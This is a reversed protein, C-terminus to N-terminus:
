IQSPHCSRMIRRSNFNIQYMGFIYQRSLLLPGGNEGVFTRRMKGHHSLSRLWLNYIAASNKLRFIIETMTSRIYLWWIPVYTTLRLRSRPSVSTRLGFEYIISKYTLSRCLRICCCSTWAAMDVHFIAEVKSLLWWLLLGGWLCNDRLGCGLIDWKLGILNQLPADKYKFSIPDQSHLSSHKRKWIHVLYRLSRLLVATLRFTKTERSAINTLMHSGSTWMGFVVTFQIKAGTACM